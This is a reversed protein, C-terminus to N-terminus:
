WRIWREVTLRRQFATPSMSPMIMIRRLSIPNIRRPNVREHGRVGVIYGARRAASFVRGNASGFPYAISRVPRGLMESLTTRSRTLEDDLEADSLRRLQRHSWGHSGFHMGEAALARIEATGLLRHTLEDPDWSNTGGIESAVLFTTASFGARKLLPWTLEATALYGDDFTIALPRPPLPAGPTAWDELAISEYGLRALIELQTRFQATSVWNEPYTTGPPPEGVQHYMLATLKVAAICAPRIGEGAM